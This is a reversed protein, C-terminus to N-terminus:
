NNGFAAWNYKKHLRDAVLQCGLGVIVVSFGAEPPIHLAPSLLTAAGGIYTILRSGAAAEQAAALARMAKRVEGEIAALQSTAGNPLEAAWQHLLKRLDIAASSRALTISDRLSPRYPLRGLRETVVRLLATESTELPIDPQLMTPSEQPGYSRPSRQPLFVSDIGEVQARVITDELEGFAALLPSAARGLEERRRLLEEIESTRNKRFLLQTVVSLQNEIVSDVHIGVNQLDRALDADEREIYSFADVLNDVTMNVGAAALLGLMAEAAVMALTDSADLAITNEANSASQASSFQLIREELVEGAFVCRDDRTTSIVHPYLIVQQSIQRRLWDPVDVSRLQDVMGDSDGVSPVLLGEQLALAM